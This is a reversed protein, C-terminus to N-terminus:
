CRQPIAVPAVLRGFIRSAANSIGLDLEDSREGPLNAFKLRKALIKTNLRDFLDSMQSRPRLQPGTDPYFNRDSDERSHFLCAFYSNMWPSKMWSAVVFAREWTKSQCNSKEVFGRTTQTLERILNRRSTTVGQLPVIPFDFSYCEPCSPEAGTM